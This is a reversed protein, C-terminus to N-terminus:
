NIGSGDEHSAELGNVDIESGDENEPFILRLVANSVESMATIIVSRNHSLSLSLYM